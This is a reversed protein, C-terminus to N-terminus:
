LGSASVGPPDLFPYPLRWIVENNKGPCLAPTIQSSPFSLAWPQQAPVTGLWITEVRMAEREGGTERCGCVGVACRGLSEGCVCPMPARGM